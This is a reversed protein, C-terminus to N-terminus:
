VQRLKSTEEMNDRIIITDDIYVIVVIIKRDQHKIFM